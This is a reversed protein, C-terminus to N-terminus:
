TWMMWAYDSEGLITRKYTPLRTCLSGWIGWLGWVVGYGGWILRRKNIIAVRDREGWVCIYWVSCCWVVGCWVSLCVCVCWTCSRFFLLSCLSSVSYALSIFSVSRRCLFSFVLGLSVSWQNPFGGGLAAFTWLSENTPSSLLVKRSQNIKLLSSPERQILWVKLSSLLFLSLSLSLSLSHRVKALPMRKGQDTKYYFDTYDM